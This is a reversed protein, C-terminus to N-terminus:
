FTTSSFNFVQLLNNSAHAWEEHQKQGAATLKYSKVIRLAICITGQTATSLWSRLKSSVYETAASSCQNLGKKLVVNYIVLSSNIVSTDFSKLKKYTLKYSIVIALLTYPSLACYSFLRLLSWHHSLTIFYGTEM